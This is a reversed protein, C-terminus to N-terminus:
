RYVSGNGEGGGFADVHSILKSDYLEDGGLGTRFDVRSMHKTPCGAAVVADAIGHQRFIELTRQNIYHAKPLLSTTPHKEFLIHKVSYNSLFISLTLGAAGGGIIIVPIDVLGM